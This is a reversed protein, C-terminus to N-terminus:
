HFMTDTASHKKNDEQDHAFYHELEFLARELGQESRILQGTALVNSKIEDTQVKQIANLLAKADLKKVPIHLGLGKKEIIKGWTPQDTYFSIIVMPLNHRLM